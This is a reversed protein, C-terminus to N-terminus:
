MGMQTCIFLLTDESLVHYPLSNLLCLPAVLKVLTLSCYPKIDCFHITESVIFVVFDCVM